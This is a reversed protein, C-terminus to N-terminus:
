SRCADRRYRLVHLVPGFVERQLAGPRRDRHRDPGRLYRAPLGRGAAAPARRACKRMREIHALLNQQAEADIVPGIDTSLRDPRGVRLEAMAGKLM